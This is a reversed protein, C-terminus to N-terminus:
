QIAFLLYGSQIFPLCYLDLNHQIPFLISESQVSHCFTFIWMISFPLCYIIWVTSFPLSFFSGSQVSHCFSYEHGSQVSYCVSFLWIIGFPLVTSSGSQVSNCVTFSGSQASHCVSFIWVASIPLCNLDLNYQIAILAAYDTVKSIKRM